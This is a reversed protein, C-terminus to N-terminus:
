KAAHVTGVTPPLVTADEVEVVEVERQAIQRRRVFVWYAIAAVVAFSVLTSTVDDHSLLVYLSLAALGLKIPIDRSRSDVFSAQISFTLGVTAVLILYAAAMQDLGPQIVLDPHVFVGAMLTFLSICVQVSRWLTVYFSAGAIKSTIAATISTPPTLEGFVAIFFAFFQAVWPNVGVHIFAPVIVVAVIIYVPAPPLGMGLVAGFIFGMGVMVALNIGAADVLLQGLKTPVGTIVLAGTMIALTALLLAIDTIMDVYSNLFRDLPALFKRLTLEGTVILSVLHIAILAAGAAYFIDLAAFMPAMFTIGMLAVLGGVVSVFAVLNIKDRWTINAAKRDIVMRTRYHTALLYVSTAVTIYYILAPVWGRAVVQFYDVSLYEAMLFAAIGMVPPMLQGGMSSANEIAAATAPPLGANIMAPITASGVTISNAAGSGSVTGIMMSGIVASQPIAHASHVAVRKTARLLSDVCGFGRLLGLVLLFSGILTLALQPLRAFIGTAMEVSSASIVRDWPLGGHYFMGPVLYGYVAYLILVINLIFLPMHRKRAYEIILLAMGGGMVLDQTDYLGARYEGLAIYNTYMYYSCYVSFVVFAAAILYNLATPLNPYFENQRLSAVTFLAYTLPIMTMALLTAGGFGTWYYFLLYGLYGISGAYYIVNLALPPRFQSTTDTM